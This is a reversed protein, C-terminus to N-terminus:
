KTKQIAYVDGNEAIKTDEYPAAVRRYFEQKVNELVGTIIAVGFYTPKDLVKTVLTTICYNLAGPAKDAKLSRLEFALSDISRDFAVRQEQKIYPM